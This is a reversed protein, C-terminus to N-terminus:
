LQLKIPFKMHYSCFTKHRPWDSKQCKRSCYYTNSVYYYEELVNDYKLLKNKRREKCLKCSKLKTKKSDKCCKENNCKFHLGNDDMKNKIRRKDVIKIAEFINNNSDEIKKIIENHPISSKSLINSHENIKIKIAILCGRSNGIKAVSILSSQCHHIFHSDHNITGEKIINNWICKPEKVKSKNNNNYLNNIFYWFKICVGKKIRLCEPQKLKLDQYFQLSSYKEILFSPTITHNIIYNIIGKKWYLTFYKRSQVLLILIEVDRTISKLTQHVQCFKYYENKYESLYLHYNQLNNHNCIASTTMLQHFKVCNQKMSENLQDFKEIIENCKRIKQTQLELVMAQCINTYQSANKTAKQLLNSLKDQTQHHCM